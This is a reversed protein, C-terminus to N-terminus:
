IKFIIVNMGIKLVQVKPNEILNKVIATLKMNTAQCSHGHLSSERFTKALRSAAGDRSLLQLKGGSATNRERLNPFDTFHSILRRSLEFANM